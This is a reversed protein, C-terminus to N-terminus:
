AYQLRAITASPQVVEQRRQSHLDPFDVIRDHEGVSTRRVAGPGCQAQEVFTAEVQHQNVIQSGMAPTQMQRGRKSRGSFEQRQDARTASQGENLGGAWRTVLHTTELLVQPMKGARNIGERRSFTAHLMRSPLVEETSCIDATREDSRERYGRFRQCVEFPM